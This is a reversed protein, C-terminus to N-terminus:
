QCSHNQSFNLLIEFSIKFISKFQSQFLLFSFIFYLFFFCFGEDMKQGSPGRMGERKRRGRGPPGAASPGREGREIEAARGEGPGVRLALAWGLLRLWSACMSERRTRKDPQWGTGGKVWQCLSGVQWRATRRRGRNYGLQVGCRRKSRSFLPIEKSKERVSIRYLKRRLAAAEKRM